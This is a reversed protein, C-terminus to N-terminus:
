VEIVKIEITEGIRAFPFRRPKGFAKPVVRDAQDFPWLSDRSEKGNRIKLNCERM